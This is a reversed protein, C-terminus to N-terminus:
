ITEISQSELCKIAKRRIENYFKRLGDNQEIRENYVRNAAFKNTLLPLADELNINTWLKFLRTAENLIEEEEINASQLFKHLAKGNEVLSYRYIWIKVKDEESM